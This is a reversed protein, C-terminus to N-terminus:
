NNKLTILTPLNKFRTKRNQFQEDELWLRKEQALKELSAPRSENKFEPSIRPEFNDNETFYLRTAFGAIDEDELMHSIQEPKIANHLPNIFRLILDQTTWDDGELQPEEDIDLGKKKSRFEESLVFPKPLGKKELRAIDFPTTSVIIKFHDETFPWNYTAAM